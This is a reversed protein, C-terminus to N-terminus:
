RFIGRLFGPLVPIIERWWPLNLAEVVKLSTTDEDFDDPDASDGICYLEFFYTGSTPIKFLETIYTSISTITYDKPPNGWVDDSTVTCETCSDNVSIYGKLSANVWVYLPDRDENTKGNISFEFIQCKPAPPSSTPPPSTTTTTPPKTTSTINCDSNIKCEKVCPGSSPCKRCECTNTCDSQCSSLSAYVGNPNEDCTWTSTDCSYRLPPEKCYSECQNRSNYLGTSVEECQYTSTNCDYRSGFLTGFFTSFFGQTKCIIGCEFPSRYLGSLNVYCKYTSIDCDYRPSEPQPEVYDKCKCKYQCKAECNAKSSYLGSTNTWSSSYKCKKCFESSTNCWTSRCKWGSYTEKTTTTTLEPESPEEAPPEEVPPEEETCGGGNTPPPPTVDDDDDDDSPTPSTSEEEEVETWVGSADLGNDNYYEEEESSINEEELEYTTGSSGTFTDGIEAEDPIDLWDDGNDETDGIDWSEALENDGNGGNGGGNILASFSKLPFAVFAISFCLILALIIYNTKNM